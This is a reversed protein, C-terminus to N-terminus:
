AEPGFVRNFRKRGDYATLFGLGLRRLIIPPWIGTQLFAEPNKKLAWLNKLKQVAVDRPLMRQGCDPALQVIKDGFIDIGKNIHNTIEEVTEVKIDDSRVSGLCIKKCSDHKKFVEFLKPSAKFEHSLIDVPM